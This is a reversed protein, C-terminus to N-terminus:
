FRREESPRDALRHGDCMGNDVRLESPMGLNLSIVIEDNPFLLVAFTNFPLRARFPLSRRAAGGSLFHRVKARSASKLLM